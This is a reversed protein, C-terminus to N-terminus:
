WQKGASIGYKQFCYVITVHNRRNLSAVCCSRWASFIIFNWATIFRKGMSSYSSRPPPLPTDIYYWCICLVQKRVGPMVCLEKYVQKRSRLQVTLALVLLNSVVGITFTVLFCVTRLIVFISLGKNDDTAVSVTSVDSTQTHWSSSFNYIGDASASLVATPSSADVIM